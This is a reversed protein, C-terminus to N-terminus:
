HRFHQTKVEAIINDVKYKLELSSDIAIDRDEKDDKDCVVITKEKDVPKEAEETEEKVKIENEALFDILEDSKEKPVKVILMDDETEVQLKVGTDDEFQELIELDADDFKLTKYEEEIPVIASTDSVQQKEFKNKLAVMSHKKAKGLLPDVDEHFGQKLKDTM